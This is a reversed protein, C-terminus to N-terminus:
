ASSIQLCLLWRGNQIQIQPFSPCPFWTIITIGGNAFLETNLINETWVSVCLRRKWIVGTILANEFIETKTVSLHPRPPRVTFILSRNWIGGAYNSLPKLQFIQCTMTAKIGSIIQFIHEERMYKVVEQVFIFWTFNITHLLTNNVHRRPLWIPTESVLIPPETAAPTGFSDEHFCNRKNWHNQMATRWAILFAIYVSKLPM